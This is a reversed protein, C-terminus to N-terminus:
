YKTWSGKAKKLATIRAPMSKCCSIAVKKLHQDNFWVDSIALKLLDKDTRHQGTRLNEAKMEKIKPVLLKKLTKWVNEIPNMDPANSPWELLPIKNRTLASAAVKSRHCPALDHMFTFKEGRLPFWKILQRVAVEEIVEAYKEGNMYGDVFYLEGVGQASVVGWIMQQTPHKMRKVVSDGLLKEGAQRRM